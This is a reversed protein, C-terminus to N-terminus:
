QLGVTSISDWRLGPPEIVRKSIKSDSRCKVGGSYVTRYPGQRGMDILQTSKTDVLHRQGLNGIFEPGRGVDDILGVKTM